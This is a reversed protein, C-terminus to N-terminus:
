RNLSPTERAPPKRCLTEFEARLSRWERQERTDVIREWLLSCSAAEDRDLTAPDYLEAVYGIRGWSCAFVGFLSAVCTMSRGLKVEVSAAKFASELVATGLDKQEIWGAAFRTTQVDIAPARSFLRRADDLGPQRYEFQRDDSLVARLDDLAEAPLELAGDDRFLRLPASPSPAEITTDHREPASAPVVPPEAGSGASADPTRPRALPMPPVRQPVASPLVDIFVVELADRAPVHAQESRMAMFLLGHGLLVALGIAARLRGSVIPSPDRHRIRRLEEFANWHSNAPDPAV